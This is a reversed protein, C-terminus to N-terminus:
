AANELSFLADDNEIVSVHFSAYTNFKTKLRTCVFKKLTLQEKLSKEVDDASVGPSFHSVFLAKSRAQKPIIPLLPSNRIGILPQCGHKVTSVASAGTATKKQKTSSLKSVM